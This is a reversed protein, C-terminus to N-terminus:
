VSALRELREKCELCYVAWPRARLRELCIWRGCELCKGFEGQDIRWLAQAITELESKRTEMVGLVIEEQLDIQALEEEDKINNILDHYEEDVREKLNQRIEEWLDQKKKLLDQKIEQIEEPKLARRTKKM